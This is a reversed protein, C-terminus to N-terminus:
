CKLFPTLKDRAAGAQRGAPQSSFLPYWWKKKLYNYVTIYDDLKVYLNSTIYLKFLIIMLLLSIIIILMINIFKENYNEGKKLYTYINIHYKIPIYKNILFSIFKKYLSNINKNFILLIITLVLILELINFSILSELLGVLPITGEGNELPSNITLEPGPSPIRDVNLDSNPHNKISGVLQQQQPYHTNILSCFRQLYSNRKM